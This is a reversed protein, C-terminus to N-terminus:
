KEREIARWGIDRRCFGDPWKLPRRRMPARENRAIAKGRACVNLRTRWALIEATPRTGAHIQRRSRHPPM